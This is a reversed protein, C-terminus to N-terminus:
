ALGEHRKRDSGDGVIIYRLDGVEQLVEPLVRIVQDVGKYQENADLRAVSLLTHPRKSGYPEVGRNRRRERYSPDLVPQLISIKKPEVGNVSATLQRTYESISVLFDARKLGLRQLLPLRKWVEIGYLAVGFQRTLGISKLVLGIPSFNALGLLTIDPRNKIAAGIFGAVFRTTQGGFARFSFGNKCVYPAFADASRDNSSLIYIRANRAEAYASAARCLLRSYQQIGGNHRFAESIVLLVSPTHEHKTVKRM